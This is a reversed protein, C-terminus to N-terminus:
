PTARKSRAATIWRLLILPWLAAAAPLIILRFSFPAGNAASDLRHVGKIVFAAGICVGLLVYLATLLLLADAIPHTM